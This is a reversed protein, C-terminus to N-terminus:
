FEAVRVEFFEGTIAKVFDSLMLRLTYAKCLASAFSYISTFRCNRLSKPVESVAASSLEDWVAHFNM